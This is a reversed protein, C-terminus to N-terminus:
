RRLETLRHLLDYREPLANVLHLAVMGVLATTMVPHREVAIDAAESLTQGKPCTLDYVAIGGILVGWAMLGTHDNIGLNEHGWM